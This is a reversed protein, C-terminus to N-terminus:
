HGRSSFKKVAFDFFLVVTPTTPFSKLFHCHFFDLVYSFRFAPCQSTFRAVLNVITSIFNM